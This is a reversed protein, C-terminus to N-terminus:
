AVVQQAVAARSQIAARRFSTAVAGCACFSRGQKDRGACNLGSRGAVRCADCSWFLRAGGYRNNDFAGCWPCGRWSPAADTHDATFSPLQTTAGSSGFPMEYNQLLRLKTKSSFLTDERWFEAEVLFPRHNLGCNMPLLIKTM